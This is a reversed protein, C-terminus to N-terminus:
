SILCQSLEGLFGVAQPPFIQKEEWIQMEKQKKKLKKNCILLSSACIASQTPCIQLQTHSKSNSIPVGLAVIMMNLKLDPVFSYLNLTKGRM